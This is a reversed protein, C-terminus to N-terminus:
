LRLGESAESMHCRGLLAKADRGSGALAATVAAACGSADGLQRRVDALLMRAERNAPDHDLLTEYQRGAAALEGAQMRLRASRALSRVHADDLQLARDYCELAERDRRASELAIGLNYWGSVYRPQAALLKRYTAIADDPRAAHRYAVGLNLLAEQSNARVAVARELADIAEVHAQRRLRSKGLNIWAPLYRSDLALAKRYADEAAAHDGRSAHLLGLNNLAELYDPRLEIAKRYAETAQAARGAAKELLGLNFYAEPYNGSSADIAAVYHSRAQETQGARADALGALFLHQPEDPALALLREAHMRARQHDHRQLALRLLRRRAYHYDARLGLAIEYSAEAGQDDGSLERARGLTGHAEALDPALEAAAGAMALAKAV